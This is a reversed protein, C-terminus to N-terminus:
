NYRQRWSRVILLQIDGKADAVHIETDSGQVIVDENAIDVVPESVIGDGLDEVRDNTTDNSDDDDDDYGAGNRFKFSYLWSHGGSECLVASPAISTAYVVEAVIIAPTVVREGPRQVLDVFWGRDATGIPNIVTTQDVLDNQVLTTLSHDDFVGHFTQQDVTSFDPPTLYQGTGFYVFVDNNFDVTLIPLAQIPQGPSSYLVSSTPPFASLDIRHMNGALDGMYALDHVANLDIDVVAAGTTMNALPNGGGDTHTSLAGAWLISGDTMDLMVMGAVGGVDDLGTGVIIVPDAAWSVNAFAPKSWSGNLNPIDTEWLFNPYDPDSIDLAFYTNGGEKMGGVLVTMWTGNIKQDTVRPTLNVTYEHCYLTDALGALDQLARNPIYAWMEQGTDMDLAHMMGDNAGFYIMERRDKYATAFAPYDPDFSFGVPARVPVPSSDVIDGLRWSGRDRLSTDPEGRTWAIIPEASVQDPMGMAAYLNSANAVEFQEAVNGVSTWIERTAPNRAALLSGAEWIPDDGPAYPLDFAEVFGRWGAPLYKARFLRDSSQDESSVVAVSSGASIRNVIDKLVAAMAAELENVNGTSLFLGDGNDATQQLLPADIDYGVVYTVVNQLGPLDFRHDHTFMYQAVDDMYDSWDDTDPYPAGISTCTGPENGDGDQDGIYLPLSVDQTPFGDTVVVLFSKQCYYQFGIFTPNITEDDFYSSIDVMSEATPAPGKPSVGNVQNVVNTRPSGLKAMETGGDGGSHYKWASFRIEAHDLIIQSIVAKAAQIRTVVPLSAREAATANYFIWNLYNGPYIGKNGTDSKVLFADPTNALSNDFDFPTYLKNVNVLYDVTPDLLGAYVTFPDYNDHYVATNMTNSSSLLFVVNGSPSNRLIPLPYECVQASADLPLLADSAACLAVGVIINLINRNNRRM